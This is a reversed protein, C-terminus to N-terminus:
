RHGVCRFVQVVQDLADLRIAERLGEDVVLRDDVIQPHKKGLRLAHSHAESDNSTTQDRTGHECWDDNVTYTSDCKSQSRMYHSVEDITYCVIPIFIFSSCGSVSSTIAAIFLCWCCPTLRVRM